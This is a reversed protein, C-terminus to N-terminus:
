TYNSMFSLDMKIGLEGFGIFQLIIWYILLM